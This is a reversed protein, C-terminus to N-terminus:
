SRTRLVTIAASLGSQYKDRLLTMVSKASNRRVKAVLIRNLKDERANCRELAEKALLEATRPSRLRSKAFSAACAQWEDNLPRAESYVALVDFEDALVPSHAFFSSAVLGALMARRWDLRLFVPLSTTWRVPLSSSGARTMMAGMASSWKTTSSVVHSLGRTHVVVIIPTPATCPTASIFVGAMHALILLM